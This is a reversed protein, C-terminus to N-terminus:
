LMPQTTQTCPSLQESVALILTQVQTGQTPLCIRIWQAVVSIGCTYNKDGIANQYNAAKKIFVPFHMLPQQREAPILVM